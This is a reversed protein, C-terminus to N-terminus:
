RKNTEPEGRREVCNIEGIEVSNKAASLKNKYLDLQKQNKLVVTKKAYKEVLRKFKDRRRKVRGSWLLWWFFEWNVRENCGETMSERASGKYEKKRRFARRLCTFRNFNLFVIEDAEDMRRDFCLKGYNGDIVWGNEAEKDLFEKVLRASDERDRERWNPLWHVTDLYLVKVGYFESLFKALTSKGSGSYGVIAIKM